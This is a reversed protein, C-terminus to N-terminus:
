LSKRLPRLGGFRPAGTPPGRTVSRVRVQTMAATRGQVPTSTSPSNRVFCLTENPMIAHDIEIVICRCWKARSSTLRPQCRMFPAKSVRGTEVPWSLPRFVRQVQSAFLKGRVQVRLCRVQHPSAACGFRCVGSKRMEAFLRTGSQCDRCDLAGGRNRQERWETWLSM